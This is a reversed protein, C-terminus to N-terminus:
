AAPGTAVQACLDGVPLSGDLRLLPCRLQRIWQEHKQRSRMELPGDDYQEAWSLFAKSQEHMDGDPGARAGYRARERTQLRAMRVDKPTYVYIALEIVPIIVDGWGCLSGSLVWGRASALTGLLLAQRAAQERKLRFPPDSREWYIDDTDFWALGLKDALALGLTSTGSGSAGFVFIRSPSSTPRM